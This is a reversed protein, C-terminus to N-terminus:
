RLDLMADGSPFDAANRLEIQFKQPGQGGDGFHLLIALCDDDHRLIRLLNNALHQQAVFRQMAQFDDPASSSANRASVWSFLSGTAGYGTAIPFM